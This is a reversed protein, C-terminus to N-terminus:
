IPDDLLDETWSGSRAFRRWDAESGGGLREWAARLAWRAEAARRAEAVEDVPAPPAWGGAVLTLMVSDARDPSRGLRKKTEAKAEVVQRMQADYGYKPASLDAALQDDDDLDIHGLQDAMAFWLESRRNPFKDPRHARESANFAIVELGDARLQDTVGGGVGVDDVVIEVQDLRAGSAAALVEAYHRVRAATHTTPKGTYTEVIRV